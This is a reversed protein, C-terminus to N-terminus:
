PRFEKKEIIYEFNTRVEEGFYAVELEGTKIAGLREVAIQSRINNCGVHLYVKDVVRFAHDLMLQKMATNYGKGWCSRSIFTYGILVKSEAEDYDYFRTCGITVGDNVNLVLYAGKSALAGQFFTEFIPRQYRDKNPHQEWIFPDNAVAYLNEFDSVQLPTLLVKHNMLEKQFFDQTLMYLKIGSVFCFLFCNLNIEYRHM